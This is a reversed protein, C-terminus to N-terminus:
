KSPLSNNFQYTGVVGISNQDKGTLEKFFICEFDKSYFIHRYDVDFSNLSINRRSNELDAMQRFTRIENSWFVMNFDGLSIVPAEVENIKEGVQLLHSVAEESSKKSFPPLLYTSFIYARRGEMKLSVYLNPKGDIIMNEKTFLPLKSYMAMGYFDARVISERYQYKASLEKRLLFDWDPTVEQFSILDVELEEVLQILEKFGDELTSLNIHAVTIKPSSTVTPFVLNSNSETKLFFALAASGFFSILMLKRLNVSLFILGIGLLGLMFQGAFDGGRKALFIEPPNICVWLLIVVLFAYILISFKHKLIKIM